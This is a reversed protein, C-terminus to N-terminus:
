VATNQWRQCIWPHQLNMHLQSKPAQWLSNYDAFHCFSIRKLPYSCETNLYELYKPTERFQVLIRKLSDQLAIYFTLFHQSRQPINSKVSSKSSFSLKQISISSGLWILGHKYLKYAYKIKFKLSGWIQNLTWIDM